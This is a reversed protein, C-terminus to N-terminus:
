NSKGNAKAKRAKKGGRTQKKSVHEQIAKFCAYKVSAKYLRRGKPSNPHIGDKSWAIFPPGMIPGAKFGAHVWYHFFEESDCWSQLLGNFREMGLSFQSIPVKLGKIRPLAQAIMVQRVGQAKLFNVFDM